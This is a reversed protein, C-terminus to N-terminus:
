YLIHGFIVLRYVRDLGEIISGFMSCCPFQDSQVHLNVGKITGKHSFCPKALCPEYSVNFGDKDYVTFFLYPASKRIILINLGIIGFSFCKLQPYEDSSGQLLM